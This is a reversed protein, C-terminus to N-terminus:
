ILLTYDFEALTIEPKIQNLIYQNRFRNARAKTWDRLQPAGRHAARCQTDPNNNGRGKKAPRARVSKEVGRQVVGGYVFGLDLYSSSRTIQLMRLSKQKMETHKQPRAEGARCPGPPFAVGSQKGTEM